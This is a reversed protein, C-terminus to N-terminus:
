FIVQGSVLEQVVIGVVGIMALRGNNIEKLKLQKLDKENKPKLNLPDFKLDGPIHTKSLKAVGLPEKLTEELPQWATIITQGEIMAIAWTVLLWFNPYIADAQQFQYIAPGTIEGNFFIPFAEGFVLGLFAIMSVRGHKIEAEQYLKFQDENIDITFGAPDFFGFPGSSGFADKPKFVSGPQGKPISSAPITTDAKEFVDFMQDLNLDQVTQTTTSDTPTTTDVETSRIFKNSRISVRPLNFANCVTLVAILLAFCKIFM